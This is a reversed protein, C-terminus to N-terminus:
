GVKTPGPWSQAISRVPGILGTSLTSYCQLQSLTVWCRWLSLRPSAPGALGKLGAEPGEGFRIDGASKKQTVCTPASPRYGRVTPFTGEVEADTALEQSTRTKGIGPEGVLTSFELAPNPVPEPARDV